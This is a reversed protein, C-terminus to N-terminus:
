NRSSLEFKDKSFGTASRWQRETTLTPLDLKM